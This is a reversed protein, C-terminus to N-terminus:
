RTIQGPNEEYGYFSRNIVQFLQAAADLVEDPLTTKKEAWSGVLALAVRAKWGIGLNIEQRKAAAQIQNVVGSATQDQQNVEIPIGLLNSVEKVIIEEGIIDEIEIEEGTRGIADDLMVISSDHGAYLERLLSNKRERGAQDTDLIVVPRANQGLFLSAILGVNKTGGCPTIHIEDPLTQRNTRACQISLAQLYYFDSMGEVLLNKQHQLLNQVMAYGAAAQLPFITDRDDPWWTSTVKSHGTDEEYVPRVRHLNEGDILFPSHTTYALQNTLSLEEFFSILEQQATPHLNLGPEDLLLIADEHGQNSEALFVLYFSFFWQFGKSRSELEIEVHPRLNDTVWIRFYEGDVDYRITHRRQSWWNSFRESIDISASNLRIAREDINQRDARLQSENPQHGQALADRANKDGLEEIEKADLAVLKFMANITRVRPNDRDRGLDEIFRPLWIASELIGYNEFYIMVPLKDKLLEDLQKAIPPKGAEQTIPSLINLLSEIADATLPDSRENLERHLEGLSEQWSATRLDTEDKLEREWRDALEVLDTRRNQAQEVDEGDGAPLRRAESALSKLAEILPEPSVPQDPAEPDYRLDLSGDYYRTATFTKPFSTPPEADNTAKSAITEPIEFEVSCAPWKSRSRQGALYDRTYRDRPFEKQPNYTEASAPNFKHLAKLLATKGSENRGVFATVQDLDIWGSDDINRYNQVRFRLAKM